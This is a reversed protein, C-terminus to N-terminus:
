ASRRRAPGSRPRPMRRRSPAEPSAGMPPKPPRGWRPTPRGKETSAPSTRTSPCPRPSPTPATWRTPRPADSSRPPTPTSRSRRRDRACQDDLRVVRGTSLPGLAQRAEPPSGEEYGHPAGPHNTKSSSPHVTRALPANANARLAFPADGTSASAEREASQVFRAIASLALLTGEALHPHASVNAVSEPTRGSCLPAGDGSGGGRLRDRARRRRCFTHQPM